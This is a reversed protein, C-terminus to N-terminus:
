GLKKKADEPVEVKATGVESVEVTTTRNVPRDNGNFSISGEVHVEYKTLVGDKTWFKVTGKGDRVEPANGGGRGGFTMLSKVGDPSLAGTYAGDVLKLESAKGALEQADVAPAKFNQLTRALMRGANAGQGPGGGGAGAEALQETTQWGDQTKAVAKTGHVVAEITNEGRPIKLHATGDKAVRGETVRRGGGPGGGQAEVTSKWAYPAQESLKKAAAVVQDRPTADAAMVGAGVLLGLLISIHLKM